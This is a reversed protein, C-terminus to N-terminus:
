WANDMTICASSCAWVYRSARPPMCGQLQRILTPIMSISQLTMLEHTLCVEVHLAAVSFARNYM